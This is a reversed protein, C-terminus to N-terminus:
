EYGLYHLILTNVVETPIMDKKKLLLKEEIIMQYNSRCQNKSYPAAVTYIM